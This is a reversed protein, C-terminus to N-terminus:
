RVGGGSEGGTGLEALSALCRVSACALLWLPAISFCHDWRRVRLSPRRTTCTTKCLRVDIM